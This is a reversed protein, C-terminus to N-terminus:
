KLVLVKYKDFIHPAMVSIIKLYLDSFNDNTKSNILKLLDGHSCVPLDEKSYLNGSLKEMNIIHIPNHKKLFDYFNVTHEAGDEEFIIDIESFLKEFSTVLANKLLLKQYTLGVLFGILHVEWAINLDFFLVITHM